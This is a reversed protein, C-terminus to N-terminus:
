AHRRASSLTQGTLFSAHAMWDILAPDPHGQVANVRRGRGGFECALTAVMMRLAAAQGRAAPNADEDAPLILTLSVAADTAAFDAAAERLAQLPDRADRARGDVIAQPRPGATFAPSLDAAHRLALGANRDVQGATDQGPPCSVSGGFVSSGGDVSVVCGRLAPDAPAALFFLAEAIERPTGMRGLPIKAVARAPDLQGGAILGDVLATRIFGPCLVTVALDDRSEALAMMMAILGAKSPSYAGRLPIARLGAGSSVAVVRAGRSLKGDLAALMRLPAHQNLAFAADLEAPALDAIGRGPAGSAGANCIVAAVPGEVASLSAYHDLRILDMAISQHGDGPLDTLVTAMGDSDRDVLVCAWGANAFLRATERGIGSAAGTIVVKDRVM